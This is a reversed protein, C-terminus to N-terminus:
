HLRAFRVIRTRETKGALRALEQRIRAHERRLAGNQQLAIILRGESVALARRLEAVAEPASPLPPASSPASDVTAHGTVM